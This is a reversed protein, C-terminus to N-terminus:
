PKEVSGDYYVNGDGGNYLRNGTKFTFEQVFAYKQYDGNGSDYTKMIVVPLTGYGDKWPSRRPNLCPTSRQWTKGAPRVLDRPVPAIREVVPPARANSTHQNQQPRGSRRPRRQSFAWPTKPWARARCHGGPNHPPRRQTFASGARARGGGQPANLAPFGPEPQLDRNVRPGPDGGSATAGTAYSFSERANSATFKRLSKTM